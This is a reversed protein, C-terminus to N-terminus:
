ATRRGAAQPRRSRQDAIQRRPDLARERGGPRDHRREVLLRHPPLPRQGPREGGLHEPGLSAQRSTSLRRRMTMASTMSPHVDQGESAPVKPDHRIATLASNQFLFIRKRRLGPRSEGRRRPRAQAATGLAEDVPFQGPQMEVAPHELLGGVLGMRQQLPHPKQRDRGVVEVFEEHDADGAQAALHAFADGELARVPQRRGLLQHADGLRNRHQGAVLLLAPAFQALHQRLLPDHQDVPRIDGLPFPGPELLVEQPLDKRQQRRERDIRRVRERENGIEAEGDRQLECAGAVAPAISASMRMGPLISRKMRMGAPSPPTTRM